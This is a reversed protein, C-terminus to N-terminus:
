GVQVTVIDMADRRRDAWYGTTVCGSTLIIVGVLAMLITNQKM